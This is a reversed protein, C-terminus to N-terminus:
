DIKNVCELLRAIAADCENKPLDFNLEYFCNLIADQHSREKLLCEDQIPDIKGHLRLSESIQFERELISDPIGAIRACIRGFSSDSVGPGIRFLFVIQESEKVENESDKRDTISTTMQFYAILPPAERPLLLHGNFSRWLGHLHTAFFIRPCSVSLESFHKLTALALSLGEAVNTGKCFEDLLILSSPTSNRLIFSMNIADKQFSSFLSCAADVGDMITLISDCIGITASHCPTFCGIHALLVCLGIQKLYVSKGSNNPGTIVHIPRNEDMMTSNPVFVDSEDERLPHRGGEVALIRELSIVPCSFQRELSVHAFAILVDVEALYEFCKSFDFSYLVLNEILQRLFDAEMDAINSQLDGVDRDLQYCRPNKFYMNENTKFQFTLNDFSQPLPSEPEIPLVVLYGLQPLYVYTFCRINQSVLGSNRDQYGLKTLYENLNEYLKIAEDLEIYVGPMLSIKKTECVVEWAISAVLTEIMEFMGDNWCDKFKTFLPVVSRPLILDYIAKLEVLGKYMGIWDNISVKQACFHAFLGTLDKMGKMSAQLDEMLARNHPLLFYEVHKQRVRITDPNMTPFTLWTRLLNSAAKTKTRNLISFLSHGEKHRNNDLIFPTDDAFVQLAILSRKDIKLYSQDKLLCLRQVCVVSDEVIRFSGCKLGFELLAGIALIYEAQLDLVSGLRMFNEALKLSPYTQLEEVRIECLLRKAKDEKMVCCVCPFSEEANSDQNM